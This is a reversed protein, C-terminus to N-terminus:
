EGAARVRDVLHRAQEVQIARAVELEVLDDGRAVAELVDVLAVVVQERTLVDTPHDDVVASPNPPALPRSLAAIGRGGTGGPQRRRGDASRRVTLSPLSSSPPVGKRSSVREARPVR